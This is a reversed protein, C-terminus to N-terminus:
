LGPVAAPEDGPSAAVAALEAAARAEAETGLGEDEKSIRVLSKTRLVKRITKGFM